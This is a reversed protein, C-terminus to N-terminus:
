VALSFRTNFFRQPLFSIFKWFNHLVKNANLPFLVYKIDSNKLDSPLFYKLYTTYNENVCKFSLFVMEQTKYTNNSLYHESRLTIQAQM